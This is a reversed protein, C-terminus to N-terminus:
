TTNEQTETEHTDKKEPAPTTVSHTIETGTMGAAGASQTPTPVRDTQPLTPSPPPVETTKETDRLEVRLEQLSHGSLNQGPHKGTGFLKSDLSIAAGWKMDPTCELITKTGTDLLIKKLYPHQTFKHRQALKVVDEGVNDWIPIHVSGGLNKATYPCVTDRIKQALEILNALMVKTYQIFHEASKHDKGDVVIKCPYMNSLPALKGQFGVTNNEVRTKTTSLKIEDPLQGMNDRSYYRGNVVM